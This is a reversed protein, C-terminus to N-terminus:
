VYYDPRKDDTRQEEKSDYDRTLAAMLKEIFAGQRSVTQELAQVREITDEKISDAQERISDRLQSFEPWISASTGAFITMFDVLRRMDSRVEIEGGHSRVYEIVGQHGEFDWRLRFKDGDPLRRKAPIELIARADGSQNMLDSWIRLVDSPDVKASQLWEVLKKSFDARKPTLRLWADKTVLLTFSEESHMKKQSRDRPGPGCECADHILRGIHLDTRFDLKVKEFRGARMDMVEDLTLFHPEVLISDQASSGALSESRLTSPLSDLVRSEQSRLTEDDQLSLAKSLVRQGRDVLWYLRERASLGRGSSTEIFGNDLFRRLVARIADESTIGVIGKSSLKRFTDYFDFLSVKTTPYTVLIKAIWHGTEGRFCGRRDTALQNEPRLRLHRKRQAASPNLDDRPCM